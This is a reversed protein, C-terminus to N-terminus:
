FKRHVMLGPARNPQQLGLVGSPSLEIIKSTNMNLGVGVGWENKEDIPVIVSKTDRNYNIGYPLAIDSASNPKLGLHGTAFRARLTDADLNIPPHLEAPPPVNQGGSQAYASLSSIAALAVITTCLRLSRVM